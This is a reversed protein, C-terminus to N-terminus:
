VQGKENRKDIQVRGAEIVANRSAYASSPQASYIRIASLGVLTFPTLNLEVRWERLPEPWVVWHMPHDGSLYDPASPM